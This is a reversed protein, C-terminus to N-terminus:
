YVYMILSGGINKARAEKNTLLGETTSIVLIGFDKSPIYMEEYKTMNSQSVTFRPKIVGIGNIKNSLKIKLFKEYRVSFEEFGEIYNNSKLVELISKILKNSPVNCEVRGIRENTKITNIADAVKDVM